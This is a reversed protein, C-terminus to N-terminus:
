GNSGEELYEIKGGAAEIKKVASASIKAIAFTLKRSFEGEGLIKVNMERNKVLGKKVLTELSVTEGDSYRNEILELNLVTFDKKFPQNSFGRSAIRRFLPMQGGEFGLRVGRGSRSNQGKDGRGSTGGKGSGQGRGVPRKKRNSGKPARIQEM